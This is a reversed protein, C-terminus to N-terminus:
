IGASIVAWLNRSLASRMKVCGPGEGSMSLDRQRLLTTCVGVRRDIALLV